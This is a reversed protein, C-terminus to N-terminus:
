AAVNQFIMFSCQIDQETRGNKWVKCVCWESVRRVWFAWEGEVHGGGAVAVAVIVIVFVVFVGGLLRGVIGFVCVLAIECIAVYTELGVWM